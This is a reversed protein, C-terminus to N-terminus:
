KRPGAKPLPRVVEPLFVTQPDVLTDGTDIEAHHLSVSHQTDLFLPPFSASSTSPQPENTDNELPHDTIYSSAFDDDNFKNQNYPFISTKEFGSMNNPTLALSSATRVIGPIDYLTMTMGANNRM